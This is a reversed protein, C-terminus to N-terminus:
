VKLIQAMPVIDSKDILLTGDPMLRMAFHPLPRPTPGRVIAGDRKYRSGHCPCEILNADPNWATICGLHQCIQTEAYFGEPTRVLYTLQDQLTTVSNIPYDEPPGIRFSSPPEFLVNPSIFKVTVIGAGVAAVGMAGGAVENFFDRRNIGTSDEAKSKPEQNEPESM